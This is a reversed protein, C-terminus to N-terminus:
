GGGECPFIIHQEAEEEEGGVGTGGWGKGAWFGDCQLGVGGGTVLGRRV